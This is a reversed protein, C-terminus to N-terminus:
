VSAPTKPCSPEVPVTSKQGFLPRFTCGPQVISGPSLPSHVYRIILNQKAEVPNTGEVINTMKTRKTVKTMKTMKKIKTMKTMKTRKTVKTMETMETMKTLNGSM